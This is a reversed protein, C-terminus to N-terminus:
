RNTVPQLVHGLDTQGYLSEQLHRLSEDLSALRAADGESHAPADANVVCDTVIM